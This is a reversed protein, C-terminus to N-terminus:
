VADRVGEGNGPHIGGLGRYPRDTTLADLADAVTLVRAELPIAEAKLGDPHGGGDYREHHHLVLAAAEEAFM